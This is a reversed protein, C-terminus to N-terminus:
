NYITLFRIHQNNGKISKLKGTKYSYFKDFYEFTIDNISKIKGEEYDHFRSYYTFTSNGISKLKGADYDHFKDYYTLDLDGISKLKGVEYDHFSSYYTFTLDGISKIKGRDYDHFNDYYTIILNGISKIKGSEYDHFNNYYQIYNDRSNLGLANRDNYDFNIDSESRYSTLLNSEQLNESIFNPHVALLRGDTDLTVIIDQVELRVITKKNEQLLIVEKIEQAKSFLTIAFLLLSFTKKM